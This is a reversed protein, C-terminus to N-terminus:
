CSIHVRELLFERFALSIVDNKTMKLFFSTVSYDVWYTNLFQIGDANEFRVIM